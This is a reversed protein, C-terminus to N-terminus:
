FLLFTLIGGLFHFGIDAITKPLSQGAKIHPGEFKYALYGSLGFWLPFFVYRMFPLALTAFGPILYFLMGYLLHFVQRWCMYPFYSQDILFGDLNVKDITPFGLFLWLRDPLYGLFLQIKTILEKM